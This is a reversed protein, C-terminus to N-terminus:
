GRSRELAMVMEVITIIRQENTIKENNQGYKM